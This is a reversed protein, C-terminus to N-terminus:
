RAPNKTGKRATESKAAGSSSRRRVPAPKSVEVTEAGPRGLIQSLDTAAARLRSGLLQADYRMFEDRMFVLSLCGAAEGDSYTIVSSIGALEANLEGFSVSYGVRSIEQLNRWFDRWESGIARCDPDSQHREWLRRLRGRSMAALLVKSTSSRFMPMTTGRGFSMPLPKASAVHEFVNVTTESYSASILGTSGTSNALAAVLPGGANILPDSGRMRRDLEIIRPGLMFWGGHSVLLGAQSLERTYRYCTTRTLSLAEAIQESTMATHDSSFLDLVSLM